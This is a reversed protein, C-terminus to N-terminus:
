EVIANFFEIALKAPYTYSTTNHFAAILPGEYFGFHNGHPTEMFITNPNDIFREVNM